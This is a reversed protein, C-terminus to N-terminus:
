HVLTKIRKKRVSLEKKKGKANNNFYLLLENNTMNKTEDYIQRQISSKIAICDFQKEKVNSKM